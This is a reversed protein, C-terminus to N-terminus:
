YLGFTDIAYIANLFCLKLEPTADQPFYIQYTYINSCCAGKGQINGVPESKSNFITFSLGCEKRTCYKLCCIKRMIVYKQEQTPLLVECCYYYDYFDCLSFANKVLFVVLANSVIVLAKVVIMLANCCFCDDFISKLKIIGACRKEPLINIDM